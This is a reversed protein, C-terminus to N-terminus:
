GRASNIRKTPIKECIAIDDLTNIDKPADPDNNPFTEVLEDKLDQQM